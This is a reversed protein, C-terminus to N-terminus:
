PEEGRRPSPEGIALLLELVTRSGPHLVLNDRNKRYWDIPTAKGSQALGAGMWDAIMERLYIEPIPLATIKGGDGLSMWAQWHHKNRQHSLWARQFEIPQAAPDYAGSKDRIGVRKSGDRNYFQHVYPTWERRSFKSMDHIIALWLPVRMQLCSVFVFWKHRLVYCLYALHARM